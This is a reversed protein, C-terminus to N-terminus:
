LSGRRCTVQEQFIGCVVSGERRIRKRLSGFGLASVGKLIRSSEELVWYDEWLDSTDVVVSSRPM